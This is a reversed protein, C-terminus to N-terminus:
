CTEMTTIIGLGDTEIFYNLGDNIYGFRRNSEVVDPANFIQVGLALVPQSALFTDSLYNGTQFRECM